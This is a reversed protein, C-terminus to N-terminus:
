RPPSARSAACHGGVEDDAARELLCAKDLHLHSDAFGRFVLGGAAALEPAGTDIRPALEAIRGRSIGIDLPAGGDQLRAGRIVLDLTM